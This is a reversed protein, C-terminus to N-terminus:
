ANADNEIGVDDDAATESRVAADGPDDIQLLLAREVEEGRFDDQTLVDAHQAIGSEPWHMAQGVRLKLLDLLGQPLECLEHLRVFCGGHDLVVRVIIVEQRTSVATAVKATTAAHTRPSVYRARTVGADRM